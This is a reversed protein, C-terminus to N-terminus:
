NQKKIFHTVIYLLSIIGILILIGTVENLNLNFLFGIITICALIPITIGGPIKYSDTSPMTKRLKIVALAVGLYLLLIAASSLVALTKFGGFCAFLLGFCAYTIVSIYPTNYKPHIKALISPLITGDKAARYLVRPMSLIEGSINGFMSIGAGITILLLGISGFLTKSVIGLPNYKNLPLNSGLIGQATVQIAIYLLLIGLVSILIAKPITKKPNIIEGGITLGTEAGQFAFFLILSTKGINQWTPVETWTLNLPDIATSGWFVIIILPILKIITNFKVLGMGNKVGSINLFALGGFLIIFFLIQIFNYQLLFLHPSLINLLANAVAADAAICSCIFLYTSLFGWYPGFATQIYTYAGGSHNIKSGAEAFCFMILSILLGCFLYALISAAGLQEAVIAPLAFIGAGIVINSINASLGWTGISRNLQNSKHM